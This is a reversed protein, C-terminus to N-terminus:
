KIGRINLIKVTIAVKRNIRDAYACGILELSITHHATGHHGKPMIQRAQTLLGCDPLDLILRGGKWSRNLDVALPTQGPTTQQQILRRGAQPHRLRIRGADPQHKHKEM